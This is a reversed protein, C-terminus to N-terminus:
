VRLPLWGRVRIRRAFHLLPPSGPLSVGIQETMCCEDICCEAPQLPWPEHDVDGRRVVGKRDVIFFSYRETLFHELTGPVSRFAPGTPRYRARWRAPGGRRDRRESVYDIWDDVGAGERRVTMRARFYPLGFFRRALMVPLPRGADLSFFWVGVHGTGPHRVYTRLNLEPFGSVGPMAPIGRPRTGAMVFPVVGLWAEGDFTDVELQRPVVDRLDRASVPWHAFMLDEWAMLMAHGRSRLPTTGPTTM